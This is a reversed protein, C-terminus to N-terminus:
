SKKLSPALGTTSPETNKNMRNVTDRAAEPSSDRIWTHTEFDYKMPLTVTEAILKENLKENLEKLSENDAILKENLEKLSENSSSIEIYKKELKESEKLIKELNFVAILLMIFLLISVLEAKFIKNFFNERSNSSM